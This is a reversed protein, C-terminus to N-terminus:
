TRTASSDGKKKTSTEEVKESHQCFQGLDLNQWIKYTGWKRQSRHRILKMRLIDLSYEEKTQQLSAAADAIQMIALSEGTHELGVSEANLSARNSQHTAVMACQYDCALRRMDRTATGLGIRYSSSDSSVVNKLDMLGDVLVVDPLKGFTVDFREIDKELTDVAISGSAYQSISLRGKFGRLIELQQSTLKVDLLSRVKMEEKDEWDEDWVEVARSVEEARPRVAGSINQLIRQLVRDKSMELTFYLVFKGSILSSAALHVMSWSKGVNTPSMIVFLEKRYLGKIDEDLAYIRTPTCFMGEDYALEVLRESSLDLDDSSKSRVLGGGRIAAVLADQSARLNGAKLLGSAEFMSKQLRISFVYEDIKSVIWHWEPLPLSVVRELVQTILLSQEGRFMEEVTVKLIDPPIEKHEKLRGDSPIECYHSYYFLIARYLRAKHVTSFQAEGIHDKVLLTLRPYGILARLFRDEIALDLLLTDDM